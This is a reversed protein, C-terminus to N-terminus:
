PKLIERDLSADGTGSDRRPIFWLIALGLGGAAVTAVVAVLLWSVSVVFYNGIAWAVGLVPVLVFVADVLRELLRANDTRQQTSLSSTM